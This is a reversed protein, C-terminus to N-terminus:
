APVEETDLVAARIADADLVDREADVARRLRHLALERRAEVVRPDSDSVGRGKLGALTGSWSAATRSPNM